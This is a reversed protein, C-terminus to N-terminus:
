HFLYQFGRHALAFAFIAIPGACLILLLAQTVKGALAAATSTPAEREASERTQSVM